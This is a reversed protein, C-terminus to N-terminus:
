TFGIDGLHDAIARAASFQSFETEITDSAAVIDCVALKERAKGIFLGHTCIAYVKLAGKEKLRSTAKAITGGTSIIDDVIAVRKGDVSASAPAMEVTEGDIRRKELHDWEADMRSAVSEAIHRAGKDPAMIMDPPEELSSLFDAIVSYSDINSGSSLSYEIVSEKHLNAVAFHDTNGSLATIVARASLSEGPKFKKDQRSYGLYPIITAVEAAEDRVADQLFQTEVINEDPYASNVIVVKEGDVDDLVRVYCEKDPFRMIEVNLLSAGTIKSLEKAINQSASGAVILM